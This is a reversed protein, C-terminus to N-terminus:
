PMTDDPGEGGEGGPLPLGEGGPLPLGEGGPLPLGEPMMDDLGGPLGEGGPLPLGEGGPLPLGEGGPLPLGEGGPQQDGVGGGQQGPVVIAVYAQQGIPDGGSTQLRWHGKYSGPVAPAKMMVSIDATTGTAAAPVDVSEPAGMQDGSVFVWRTNAPWAAGGTSLLRWTKTFVQGPFFQSNDPVTVDAVFSADPLPDASLPTSQYEPTPAPATAGPTLDEATPTTMGGPVVSAIDKPIITTIDEPIITAIDDPIIAAIDEPIITAIDEPIITAIDEPILAAIEAPIMTAIADAAEGIFPIDFGFGGGDGTTSRDLLLAAAGLVIMVIAAAAVLGIILPMSSKSTAPPAGPVSLDVPAASMDVPGTAPIGMPAAAMMEFSTQGVRVQDGPQVATATSIRQGNVFTGNTSNEDQIYLVNGQEWVTAHHGSVNEDPVVVDVGPRRGLRLGSAPVSYEQGTDLDRLVFVSATQNM